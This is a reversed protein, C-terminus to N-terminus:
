ETPAASLALAQRKREELAQRKREEKVAVIDLWVSAPVQATEDPSVAKCLAGSCETTWGKHDTAYWEMFGDLARFRCAIGYCTLLTVFAKTPIREVRFNRGDRWGLLSRNTMWAPPLATARWWASRPLAWESLCASWRTQFLRTVLGLQTRWRELMAAYAPDHLRSHVSDIQIFRDFMADGLKARWCQSVDPHAELFNNVRAKRRTKHVTGSGNSQETGGADTAAAFHSSAVLTLTSAPQRRPPRLLLARRSLSAVVHNTQRGGPVLQRAVPLHLLLMNATAPPETLFSREYRLLWSVGESVVRKV